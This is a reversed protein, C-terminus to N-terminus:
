QFVTFIITTTYEQVPLLVSIGNIRYQIPVKNDRGETYFFVSDFDTITQYSTGGNSNNNNNDTRRVQLQLNPHWEDYDDEKRILVTITKNKNKAKIEIETEDSDSEYTGVYDNGAETIDSARIKKEWKGSVDIEVNQSFLWNSVILFVILIFNKM